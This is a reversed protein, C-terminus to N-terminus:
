LFQNFFKYNDYSVIRSNFFYENIEKLNAVM